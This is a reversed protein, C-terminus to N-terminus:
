TYGEGLTSLCAKEEPVYNHCILFINLITIFLSKLKQQKKQILIESVSNQLYLHIINNYHGFKEM